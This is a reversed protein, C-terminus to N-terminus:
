VALKLTIKVKGWQSALKRSVVERATGIASALLDHTISDVTESKVHHLLSAALRCEISRFAVEEVKVMLGALQQSLSSFVFPRFLASQEISSFFQNASMILISADAEVIAEASYQDGSMLCSTTLVCTNSPGLWYLLM